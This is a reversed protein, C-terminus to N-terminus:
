FHGRGHKKRQEYHNRIRDEKRTVTLMFFFDNCYSYCYVTIEGLYSLMRYRDRNNLKVQDTSIWAQLPEYTMSMLIDYQKFFRIGFLDAYKLLILFM